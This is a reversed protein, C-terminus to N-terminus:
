LFGLFVLFVLVCCVGGGARHKISQAVGREKRSGVFMTKVGDRPLSSAGLSTRGRYFTLNFFCCQKLHAQIKWTTWFTSSFTQCELMRPYWEIRKKKGIRKVSPSSSPVSQYASRGGRGGRGMTYKTYKQCPLDQVRAELDVLAHTTAVSSVTVSLPLHIVICSSAHM